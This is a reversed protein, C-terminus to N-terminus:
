DAGVSMAQGAQLAFIEQARHLYTHRAKIIRQAAFRVKRCLEKKGLLSRILAPTEAPDHFYFAAEGHRFESEMEPCPSCVQLGGAMPIEFFRMNAAPYSTYDIINLNIRSRAIARAFDPGRLARGQWAKLISPNNKCRRGWDPGWIHLNFETLSSLLAEREPRWGGIFSVDADYFDDEGNASVPIEHISPDGALPLWVPRVAGLKRMPEVICQTYVCELDYMPLCQASIEDLNVLPDPWIHVLTAGVTAKLQALTGATIWCTGVVIIFQPGFQRARVVLNRNAKRGWAEVPVFQNFKRGLAGFRCCAQVEAALNFSAVECGIREFAVKYSQALDGPGFSGILLIKNAKGTM